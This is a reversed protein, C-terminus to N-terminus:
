APPQEIEDLGQDFKGALLGLYMPDDSHEEARIAASLMDESGDVADVPPAGSFDYVIKRKTM